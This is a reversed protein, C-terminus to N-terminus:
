KYANGTWKGKVERDEGKDKIKKIYGIDGLKDLPM